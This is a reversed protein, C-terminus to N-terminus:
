RFGDAIWGFMPFVQVDRLGAQHLLAAAEEASYRKEIPASFRDFQDNYLVRFPYKTYVFLPWKRPATWGFAILKRYPLVIGAYLALSLVLCLARLMPFPLRTTLRRATSVLRLILGAWGPRKWYLYLRLQGGPKLKRALASVAEETNPLHHVVGMSYVLDFADDTLPLHTIDAQVCSVNPLDSVNKWAVDIARSFDAAVLYSVYPALQRAHRGMGCGADLVRASRLGALDIRAFYDRFNTDGSSAWDNFHTWEYGFSAQTRRALPENPTEVFRPIGDRIPIHRGCGSCALAPVAGDEHTLQFEGSCELCRLLSAVASVRALALAIVDAGDLPPMELAGGSSPM